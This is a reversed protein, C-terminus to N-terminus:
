APDETPILRVRVERHADGLPDDESASGHIERIELGNEPEMVFESSNGRWDTVFFPAHGTGQVYQVQLGDLGREVRGHAGNFLLLLRSVVFDVMDRWGTERTTVLELTEWRSRPWEFPLAEFTVELPGGTDLTVEHRRLPM